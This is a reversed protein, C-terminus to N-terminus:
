SRAYYLRWAYCINVSGNFGGGAGINSIAISFAENQLDLRRGVKLDYKRVLANPGQRDGVGGRAQVDFYDLQLIERKELDDTQALQLYDTFAGAREKNIYFMLGILSALPPNAVDTNCVGFWFLSRVLTVRDQGASDAASFPNLNIVGGSALATTVTMAQATWQTNRQRTRRSLRM